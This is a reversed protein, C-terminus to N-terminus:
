TQNLLLTNSLLVNSPGFMIPTGCKFGLSVSCPIGFEGKEDKKGHSTKCKV